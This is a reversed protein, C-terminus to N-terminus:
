EVEGAAVREALECLAAVHKANFIISVYPRHMGALKSIAGNEMGSERILRLARGYREYDIKQM